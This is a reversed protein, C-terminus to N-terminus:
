KTLLYCGIDQIEDLIADLHRHTITPNNLIARWFHPLKVNPLNQHESLVPTMDDGVKFWHPMEIPSYDVMFTGRTSM